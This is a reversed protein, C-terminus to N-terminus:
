PPHAPIVDNRDRPARLAFVMASFAMVAYLMVAWGAASLFLSVNEPNVQTDGMILGFIIIIIANSLSIGILRATETGGSLIGFHERPVGILAWKVVSPMFLAFGLGNMALSVIILLLSTSTDIGVLLLMGIGNVLCGAAAVRQPPYRDSLRGCYPGLVILLLQSILLVIGTTRPDMGYVYQLFLSLILTIGFGSGQFIINAGIAHSLNGSSFLAPPILPTSCRREWLYFGALAGSGAILIALGKLSSIGSLGYMFLLVGSIFLIMGFRDYDSTRALECEGRVRSLILLLNVAAIVAVIAFIGRWSAYYTIAGGALLGAGFGTFMAAINIGLARGREKEPFVLSLLAISTGFVMAAGIGTLVRGAILVQMGPAFMCIIAAVLYVGMGATFVKKSGRIDAIRGFPVLFAGAVLFFSATIWGLLAVDASFETGIVPTAIILSAVMFPAIASGLAAIVQVLRKSAASYM